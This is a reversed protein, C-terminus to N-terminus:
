DEISNIITIDAGGRLEELRNKLAFSRLLKIIETRRQELSQVPRPRRELIEIVHWGKATQIPALLKKDDASFIADALVPDPIDRNLFGMDGGFERTARDTSYALALSAFAEGKDLRRVIEAAMAPDPLVIQRAKIQIQGRFNIKENNYYDEIDQEPVPANLIRRNAEDSLVTEQNFKLRNQVAVDQDLSLDKALHTLLKRNILWKLVTDDLAPSDGPNAAAYFTRALEMDAETINEGYVTAIIPSKQADIIKTKAAPESDGARMAMVALTAIGVMVILSLFLSQKRSIEAQTRHEPM